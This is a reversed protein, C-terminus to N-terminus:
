VTMYAGNSKQEDVGRVYASAGGGYTNLVQVIHRRLKGFVFPESLHVLRVAGVYGLRGNQRDGHLILVLRVAKLVLHHRVAAETRVFKRHHAIRIASARQFDDLRQVVLIRQLAAAEAKAYLHVVLALVTRVLIMHGVRPDHDLQAVDIVIHWAEVAIVDLDGDVLVGLHAGYQLLKAGAIRVLAAMRADAVFDHAGAISAPLEGDAVLAGDAYLSREISLRRITMMHLDQGAVIAIRRARCRSRQSHNDLVHVVIRGRQGLVVLRRQRLIDRWALDDLHGGLIRVISLAAIASGEAKAQIWQGAILYSRAKLHFVIATLSLLAIIIILLAFIM